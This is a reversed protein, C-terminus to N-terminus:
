WRGWRLRVARCGHRVDVGGGGRGAARAPRLGPKVRDTVFRCGPEAGVKVVARM